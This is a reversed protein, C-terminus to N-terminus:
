AARVSREADVVVRQVAASIECGADQAKAFHSRRAGLHDVFVVLVSTQAFVRALAGGACLALAEYEADVAAADGRFTMGHAIVLLGPEDTTRRVTGDDTRDEWTGRTRVHSAGAPFYARVVRRTLEAARDPDLVRLADGADERELGLFIYVTFTPYGGFTAALSGLRM